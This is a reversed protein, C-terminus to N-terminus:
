TVFSVDTVAVDFAFCLVPTLTLPNILLGVVRGCCAFFTCIWGAVELLVEAACFDIVGGFLM